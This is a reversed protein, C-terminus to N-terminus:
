KVPHLDRGGASVTKRQNYVKVIRRDYDGALVDEELFSVTLINQDTTRNYDYIIHITGDGTQQGDPYSVGKRQDLLLGRSWSRGDDGSIFAMLHSRGTLLDTPGNKVLLLNGSKLRRIFFRASPNMIKSPTVVRWTKGMDGSISEGIGYKTRVLMWLSGDKREVIMHEDFARDKQPVDAAGRLQWTKGRDTSVIVRASNDTLRWTSAPLVWAGDSLVVPKCMMIGDTLRRPGSWEPNEKDPDKMTMSWVGAVSGEHGIAQSWFIWLKGDPDVWVEPDFARVPGPGDPDVILVEKWNDGGDRSNSVVVYNNDDENPTTGAYWIAWMTGGGTVALSPIGTFQRNKAAHVEGKEPLVIVEPPKLFATKKQAFIEGSFFSYGFVTVFIIAKIKEMFFRDM